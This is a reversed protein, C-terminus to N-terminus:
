TMMLFMKGNIESLKELKIEDIHYIDGNIAYVNFAFLLRADNSASSNTTFDITFYSWGMELTAVYIGLGYDTFPTTHKILKVQMDRGASSYAAFTLRYATNAVLPVNTQNLQTNTGKNTIVAKAAKLGSYPAVTDATFTGSGDTFFVWSTTGDEFGPNLIINSMYKRGRGDFGM